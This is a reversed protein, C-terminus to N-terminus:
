SCFILSIASTPLHAQFTNRPNQNATLAYYLVTKYSKGKRELSENSYVLAKLLFVFSSKTIISFNVTEYILNINSFKLQLKTFM